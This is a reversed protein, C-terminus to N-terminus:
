SCYSNNQGPTPRVDTFIRGYRGRWAIVEGYCAEGPNIDFQYDLAWRTRSIRSSPWVSKETGYRWSEGYHRQLAATAAAKAEGRSLAATAGASAPLLALVALVSLIAVMRKM